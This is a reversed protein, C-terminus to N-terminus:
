PNQVVVLYNSAGWGAANETYPDQLMWWTYGDMDVPGDKVIFVEAELAIYKVASSVGASEHLRLGDGGTGSVQVYDGKSIDEGPPPAQQSSQPTSVPTQTKTALPPTATPPEIVSLIATAPLGTNNKAKSLWLVGILVAFICIAFLVGGFIVRLNLWSKVSRVM